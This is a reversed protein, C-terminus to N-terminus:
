TGSPGAAPSVGRVLAAIRRAEAPEVATPLNVVRAILDETVPLSGPTWGYARPDEVGPFLGPRYWRGAYVGAATLADVTRTAADADAAFFPFRVLPAGAGIAAPLEVVGSLERVYQAVAAARRQETADLGPLAAEIQALMWRSPRMPRHALAARGEVPAVAPEFLGAGTLGSRLRAGVGGLRNLVRVQTRYARTVLDLRRGITPLADLDRGVRERLATDRMAPNLWIAGGFRTPLMKEVGFSHVSVDALPAGDEDRALRGVCHASDEVVLAGVSRAREALGRARPEDVIGFTHQVVVARTAGDVTLREPDVAVSAAAVEAHVPRLGGVLVPDVATSCTFVQTVVHGRGRVAALARFVVAMGYRAKFVLFWDAADTGTREALTRTVAAADAHTTM